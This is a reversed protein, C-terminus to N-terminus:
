RVLPIVQTVVGAVSLILGLVTLINILRNTSNQYLLDLESEVLDLLYKIKEIIPNIQQSELLVKEMEGIESIELNEVKNLTALLEGRYEKTKEIDRSVNNKRRRNYFGVQRSLTSRGALLPANNLKM